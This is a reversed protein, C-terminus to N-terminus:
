QAEERIPKEISRIGPVSAIQRHAIAHMFRDLPVLFSPLGMRPMYDDALMHTYTSHLSGAKFQEFWAPWSTPEFPGGVEVRPEEGGSAHVRAAFERWDRLPYRLIAMSKADGVRLGPDVLRSSKVSFRLTGKKTTYIPKPEQRFLVPSIGIDANPREADIPSSVVWRADSTYREKKSRSDLLVNCVPVRLYDADSSLAEEALTSSSSIWFEDSRSHFVVAASHDHIATRALCYQCADDDTCDCGEAVVLQGKAKIATIQPAAQAPMWRRCTLVLDVGMAIHHHICRELLEADGVPTLVMVTPDSTNRPQAITPTPPTECKSAECGAHLLERWDAGYKIALGSELEQLGQSVYNEGHVMSATQGRLHNLYARETVLVAAGSARVRLAYDIDAGWGTNGFHEEDLLGVSEITTRPLFMATGDVGWAEREVESPRYMRAPVPKLVKQAAWVDDYMPGFLGAKPNAREADLLGQIFGPSLCIDDNLLLFSTNKPDIAAHSLGLNSGRLWGLNTGPEITIVELDTLDEPADFRTGSDSNHVVYVRVLHAEVELERLLRDIHKRNHVPIVAALM